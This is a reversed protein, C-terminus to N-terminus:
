STYKNRRLISSGRYLWRNDVTTLVKPISIGPFGVPSGLINVESLVTKASTDGSAKRARLEFGPRVGSLFLHFLPFGDRRM